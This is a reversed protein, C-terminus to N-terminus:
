PPTRKIWGSARPRPPRSTPSRRTSSSTGATRWRTWRRRPSACGTRAARASPGGGWSSCCTTSCWNPPRCRSPPWRQRGGGPWIPSSAAASIPRPPTTRDNNLQDMQRQLVQLGAYTPFDQGSQSVALVVTEEDVPYKGPELLAENGTLVVVELRDQVKKDDSFMQRLNDAFQRAADLDNAIGMLYIRPNKRSFVADAFADATQRNFSRPDKMSAAAAKLIKPTDKIDANIPDRPDPPLPTVYPNDRLPILRGSTSLEEAAFDRGEALSRVKLLPKRGKGRTMDIRVIEGDSNNLDLRHDYALGEDDADQVKLTSPESMIAVDHYDMGEVRASKFGLSLPQNHACAVVVGPELTTQFILGYTGSARNKFIEMAKQADNDLFSTVAAEAFGNRRDEPMSRFVDMAKLAGSLETALRQRAAAPVDSLSTAGDPIFGATAAAARFTDEAVRTWEGLEKPSPAPHKALLTRVQKEWRAELRRAKRKNLPLKPFAPLSAIDVPPALVLQYAFRLSESWLGQTALLEMAGAIMPSDGKWRNPSALVREFYYRQLDFPISVGQITLVDNDGNHTISHQVPRVTSVLRAGRPHAGSKKGRWSARAPGEEAGEANLVNRSSEISWVRRDGVDMKYEKWEHGHAEVLKTVSGTAYRTHVQSVYVGDFPPESGVSRHLDRVIDAALDGRRGNVRRKRTLLPVNRHWFSLRWRRPRTMVTGGGSQGGRSQNIAITRGAVVRVRKPFATKEGPRLHGIMFVNGCADKLAQGPFYTQARFDTLFAGALATLAGAAYALLLLLGSTSDGAIAQALAGGALSFLFGAAAGGRRIAGVHRDERGATETTMVSWLPPTLPILSRLLTKVPVGGLLNAANFSRRGYGLALGGSIHGWENMLANIIHGARFAVPALLAWPNQLAALAAAWLFLDVGLQLRRGLATARDAAGPAAEIKMAVPEGDDRQAKVPGPLLPVHSAPTEVGASIVPFTEVGDDMRAALPAVVGGKEERVTGDLHALPLAPDASAAEARALIEPARAPDAVLDVGAAIVPLYAAKKYNDGGPAPQVALGLGVRPAMFIRQGALLRDLAGPGRTFVDLANKDEDLTEVRPTFVAATLGKARLADLLGTAHFGGAVLVSTEGPRRAALFNELMADDRRKAFRYFSEFAELPLSLLPGDTAARLRRDLGRLVPLRDQWLRWQDDTLAHSALREALALDTSLLRAEEQAPTAKLAKWSAEELAAVEDLLAQRDLKEVQDVYAAYATFAPFGSLALGADGAASLLAAHFAGAAADGGRLLFAQETLARMRAEPLLAALRRVLDAREKEATSFDLAREASRAQLFRRTQPFLALPGAQAALADLYDGTDLSGARYRAALSDLELQAPTFVKKKLGGLVAAAKELEGRLATKQAAARRYAEVNGDYLFPTEVGVFRLSAPGTLGVYEPAQIWDWSLYADATRRLAEASAVARFPTFNLPGSAGEVGVLVPRGGAALSSLFSAVRQQAEEQAHLDRVLLVDPARQPLDKDWHMGSLDWTRMWEARQAATRPSSSLGQTVRALAGADPLSAFTGSRRALRRDSWINAAALPEVATTWLVSVSVLFSLVQKTTTTEMEDDGQIIGLFAFLRRRIGGAPSGFVGEDL